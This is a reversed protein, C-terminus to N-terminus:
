ATRTAASLRTQHEVVWDRVAPDIPMQCHWDACDSPRRIQQEERAFRLFEAPTMPRVDNGLERYRQESHTKDTMVPAPRLSAATSAFLMM